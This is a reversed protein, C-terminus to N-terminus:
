AIREIGCLPELEAASNRLPDLRDFGNALGAAIFDRNANIDVRSEIRRCGNFEAFADLGVPREEDLVWDAAFVRCGEPLQTL